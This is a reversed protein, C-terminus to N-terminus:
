TGSSPRSWRRSPTWSTLVSALSRAFGGTPFGCQARSVGRTPRRTSRSSQPNWTWGLLRGVASALGAYTWDYPDVVNCPWHRDIGEVDVAAAVARAVREVAVRHFVQVGAAPLELRHIGERFRRVFTWERCVWYRPGYIPGPRLIVVSGDFTRIAEEM